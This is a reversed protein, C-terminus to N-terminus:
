RKLIVARCNPCSTEKRDNKMDENILNEICAKYFIHGCKTVYLIDSDISILGLCISCKHITVKDQLLLEFVKTHGKKWAIYIPTEDRDNKLNVKVDIKPDTLLIKVIELFGRSSAIHLSTEDHYNTANVNIKPDTLLIKVMELFGLSSAIHLPTNRFYAQNVDIDKHEILLSVIDPKNLEVSLHLATKGEKCTANVNTSQDKMLCKVANIDGQEVAIHLDPKEDSKFHIINRSDNSLMESSYTPKEDEGYKWDMKNCGTTLVLYSISVLISALKYFVIVEVYRKFKRCM